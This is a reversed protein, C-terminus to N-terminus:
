LAAAVAAVTLFSGCIVIEDEPQLRGRVSAFASAVDAYLEAGAGRPGARQQLAAATLGRPGPLGVLCIRQCCPSLIAMVAEVPKDALMGLILWRQGGVPSAQLNVALTQAAEANHAVDLVIQGRREFRGPLYLRPLASRVAAPSVPLRPLLAEVAALVGAANHLQAKGQLGPLPLAELQLSRGRFNWAHGAAQWSYDQGSRRLDVELQRVRELVSAPPDPDACVALGRARLIGAKEAGIAERTTGLWDTHDMGINTILACDADVVNVADLRGGLGVELIRLEVEAERFLWLAALTGFEFYTLPCGERAREVAEFARCLAADSAPEGHIVVRENYRLLHPSYYAGVRYGAARYISEALAVTSGKGNTGGVTLTHRHEALLGLAAAVAQV